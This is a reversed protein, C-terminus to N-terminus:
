LYEPNQPPSIPISFGFCAGKGEESHVLRVKGGYQEAIYRVLLLGRGARIYQREDTHDIPRKFLRVRIQPRIGRGTDEVRVEAMTDNLQTTRITMQRPEWEEPMVRAANTALHRLLRRIWQEHMAVWVDPCNCEVQFEIHQHAYQLREVEKGVIEDLHATHIEVTSGPEPAQDPLEPLALNGAAQDITELHKKAEPSLDSSEKLLFINRRIHGIERNIDHVIDAGWAGMIAIANISTLQEARKVNSLAAVALNALTTLLERDDEDLGDPARHEVNLVGIPAGAEGGERFVVALESGTEGGMADVFDPDQRVDRVLQAHNERVARATIGPGHVPM